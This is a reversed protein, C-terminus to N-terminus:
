SPSPYTNPNLILTSDCPIGCSSQMLCDRFASCPPHVENHSRKGPYDKHSVPGTEPVTGDADRKSVSGSDRMIEASDIDNDIAYEIDQASFHKHGDAACIGVFLALALGANTTLRM